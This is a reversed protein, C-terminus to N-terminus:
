DAQGSTSRGPSIETSSCASSQPSSYSALSIAGCFKVTTAAPIENTALVRVTPFEPEVIDRLVPRVPQSVVIAADARADAEALAAGVALRLADDESAETDIGDLRRRLAAEVDAAVELVPLESGALSAGRLGADYVVREPMNMRVFGVLADISAEYAPSPSAVPIRGDFLQEGPDPLGVAEYRLLLNLITWLDRASVQERLLGRCVQAIRAVSYMRVAARVLPRHSRELDALDREVEEIDLLRDALPTIERAAAVAMFAGPSIPIYGKARLRPEQDAAVALVRHGSAADVLPRGDFGDRHLVVPSAQVVLEDPHALRIPPGVRDNLRVRVMDRPLDHQPSLVVPRSVGLERLHQHMARGFIRLDDPLREDEIPIPEGIDGGVLEPHTLVELRQAHARAFVEEITAGADLGTAACGRVLRGIAERDRLAVGLNLVAGLVTRAYEAPVAPAGDAAVIAAAAAEDLLWAPHLALTECALRAVYATLVLVGRPDEAVAAAHRQLWADQDNLADAPIDALPRDALPGTPVIEFWTRRMLALSSAVSSGDIRLAIARAGDVLEVRARPRPLGLREALQELDAEARAQVDEVRAALTEAVVGSLLIEVVPPGTV